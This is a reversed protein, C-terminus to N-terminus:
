KSKDIVEFVENVLKTSIFSQIIPSIYDYMATFIKVIETATPLILDVEEQTLKNEKIRAKLQSTLDLGPSDPYKPEIFKSTDFLSSSWKGSLETKGGRTGSYEPQKGNNGFGHILGMWNLEQYYKFLHNIASNISDLVAQKKIENNSISDFRSNELAKNLAIEAIQNFKDKHEYFPRLLKNAWPQVYKGEIYNRFVNFWSGAKPLRASSQVLDAFESFTDTYSKYIISSIEKLSEQDKILISFERLVHNSTDSILKELSKEFAVFSEVTATKTKESIKSDKNLKENLKNKELELDEASVNSIAISESVINQIEEDNLPQPLNNFVITKTDSKIGKFKNQNSEFNIKLEFINNNSDYKKSIIKIKETATTYKSIFESLDFMQKDTKTYPAFGLESVENGITNLLGDLRNKEANKQSEIQQRRSNNMLNNITIEESDYSYHTTAFFFFGTSYTINLKIKAVGNISDYSSLKSTITGKIYEFLDFEENVIDFFEKIDDISKLDKPEIYQIDNEKEKKPILKLTKFYENALFGARIPLINTSIKKVISSFNPNVTSELHYSLIMTEKTNNIEFSVSDIIIRAKNLEPSIKRDFNLIKLIENKDAATKVTIDAISRLGDPFSFMDNNLEVIAILENLRKQEDSLLQFNFPARVVIDDYDRSRLIVDLVLAGTERNPNFDYSAIFKDSQYKSNIILDQSKIESAAKTSAYESSKLAVFDNNLLLTKLESEVNAKKRQLETQFNDMTINIHNQSVVLKSLLPEHYQIEFSLNLTGDADNAALSMSELKVSYKDDEFNIKIESKQVESPLVENQQKSNQNAFNTTFRVSALSENLENTLKSIYGVVSLFGTIKKTITTKIDAFEKSVIIAEVVASAEEVNPSIQKIIIDFGPYQENIPKINNKELELPFIKSKNEVVFDINQENIRSLQNKIETKKRNITSDFGTIAITRTESDILKDLENSQMSLKISVNLIGESDKPELSIIKQYKSDIESITIDENYKVETPLVESKLKSGTYSITINSLVKEIESLIKKTIIEKNKEETTKFGLVKIEKTRSRLGQGAFDTKTSELKFHLVISGKDNNYDFNLDVMKYNEYNLILNNETVESPLLSKKDIENNLNVDTIVVSNLFEIENKINRHEQTEFGSYIIEKEDTSTINENIEENKRFISIKLVVSGNLNNAIISNINAFIAEHNTKASFDNILTENPLIKEKDGANIFSVSFDINKLLENLNQREESRIEEKYIDTTKFGKIILETAKSKIQPYKVNNTILEFTIKLQGIDDNVDSLSLISINYEPYNTIFDEKIVDKPLINSKIKSNILDLNNINLLAINLTREIESIERQQITQFGSLIVEATDDSEFTKNLDSNDLTLKYTIKLLGKDDDTSYSIIKTGFPAAANLAVQNNFDTIQSALLENQNTQGIYLAEVINEHVKANINSKLSSELDELFQQRTTKFGKIKLEVTNSTVKDNKFEDKNSQLQIKLIIKGEDDDPILEFINIRYDKTELVFDGPELRSPLINKDRSEKLQVIDFTNILNNLKAIETEIKRQKITQFGSILVIKNVTSSINNKLKENYEEITFVLEISGTLDKNKIQYNLTTKTDLNSSINIENKLVESPLINDKQKNGVYFAEINSASIITNLSKIQEQKINELNQAVTLFGSITILKSKTKVTQLGDKNSQIYIKLDLTGNEDNINLIDEIYIIQEDEVTNFDDLKISSPLFNHKKIKLSLNTLNSLYLNLRKEEEKKGRKTLSDFDVFKITKIKSNLKVDKQILFYDVVLEGKEDNAHFNKSINYKEQDFNEFLYNSEIKIFESPLISATDIGTM